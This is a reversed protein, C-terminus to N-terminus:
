RVFSPRAAAGCLAAPVPSSGPLIEGARRGGCGAPRSDGRRAVRRFLADLGANLCKGAAAVDKKVAVVEVKTVLEHRNGTPLSELRATAAFAHGPGRDPDRVWGDDRHGM